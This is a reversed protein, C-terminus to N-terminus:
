TSKQFQKIQKLQDTLHDHLQDLQQSISEPYDYSQCRATFALLQREQEAREQLLIHQEDMVLSKIKSWIHHFDERETDAARPRLNLQHRADQELQEVLQSRHNMAGNFEQAIESHHLRQLNDQYDDLSEHLAEILDSLAAQAENLLM